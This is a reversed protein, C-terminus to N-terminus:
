ACPRATWGSKTKVAYDFLADIVILGAMDTRAWSSHERTGIFYLNDFVKVPDHHWVAQPPPGGRRPQAGSRFGSVVASTRSGNYLNIHEAGAAAKAAACHAQTTDPSSQGAMAQSLALVAIVIVPKSMRRVM